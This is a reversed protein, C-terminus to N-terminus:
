ALAISLGILLSLQVTLWLNPAVSLLSFPSNFLGIYTENYGSLAMGLILGATASVWIELVFSSINRYQQLVSINHAYWFQKFLSAGREEKLIPALTHFEEDEKEHHEQERPNKAIFDEWTQILDDISYNRRKNVGQGSLVDM